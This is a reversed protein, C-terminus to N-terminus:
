DRDARLDRVHRRVGNLFFLTGLIAFLWATARGQAPPDHALSPLLRDLGPLLLVAQHHTGNYWAVYAAGALFVVGSLYRMM